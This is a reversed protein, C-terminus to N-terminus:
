RCCVVGGTERGDKGAQWIGAVSFGDGCVAAGTADFATKLCERDKRGRGEVRLEGTILVDGRVELKARPKKTGIGVNGTSAQFLGDKDAAPGTLSYVEGKAPSTSVPVLAPSPNNVATSISIHAAAGTQAACPLM